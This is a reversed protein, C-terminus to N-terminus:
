EFIIMYKNDDVKRWESIIGLDRQERLWGRITQKVVQKSMYKIKIDRM